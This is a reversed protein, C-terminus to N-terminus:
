ATSQASRLTDAQKVGDAPSVSKAQEYTLPRDLRTISTMTNQQGHAAGVTVLKSPFIANNLRQTSLGAGFTVAAQQGPVPTIVNVEDGPSQAGESTAEFSPSVRIGGLQSVDLRLGSAADNGGLYDHGSNIVSLRINNRSAFSIARQVDDASKAQFAYDPSTTLTSKALKTVGPLANSWEEPKPWETDSALRRCGAPTTGNQVDYKTLRFHRPIFGSSPTSAALQTAALLIALTKM